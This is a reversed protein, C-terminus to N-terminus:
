AAPPPSLWLQGDEMVVGYTPIRLAASATCQGNRVDFRLGHAPCSILHGECASASLAAGAHPCSNELAFFRGQHHYVVISVGGPVFVLKRAGPALADARGAAIWQVDAM